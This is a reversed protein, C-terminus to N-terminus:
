LLNIIGAVLKYAYGYYIEGLSICLYIDFDTINYEGYNANLFVKEIHIDTVVLNYEIENFTFYARVRKRNREDVVNILMIDPKILLLSSNIKQKLIYVPIRDNLGYSSRYGNKWISDVEDCLISLDDNKYEAVKTWYEKNNILYNESQHPISDSLRSQPTYELLPISIIDLIKPVERDSFCIDKLSLEGKERKSVPRVWEGIRNNLLERGAICFGNHRSNALCIIKKIFGM